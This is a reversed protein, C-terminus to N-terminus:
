KKSSSSVIKRTVLTPKLEYLHELQAVKGDLRDAAVYCYGGVDDKTVLRAAILNNAAERVVVRSSRLERIIESPMWRRDRGRRLMVLLELAWVSRSFAGAFELIEDESNM